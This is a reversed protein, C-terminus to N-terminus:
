IRRATSRRAALAVLGTVLLSVSAPEPVASADFTASRSATSSLIFDGASTAFAHGPNFLSGGVIPGFSIALGYGAFAHTSTSTGLIFGLGAQLIAAAVDNQQEVEVPVSFTDTGIGAVAVTATVPANRILNASPHTINSTDGTATLLVDADTFAHGDLSGSGITEETYTIPIAAAPSTTAMWVLTSAVVTPLLSRILM